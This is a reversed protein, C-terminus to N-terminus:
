DIENDDAEWGQEMRYRAQIPEPVPHEISAITGPDARHTALSYVRDGVKYRQIYQPSKSELAILEAQAEQIQALAIRGKAETMLAHGVQSKLLMMYKALCERITENM